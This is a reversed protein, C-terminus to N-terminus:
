KFRKVADERTPYIGMMSSLGTIKLLEMVRESPNVLFLDGGGGKALERGSMVQRLGASSIYEVNSFDLVIKYKGQKAARQLEEGLLPATVSNVQGTVAVVLANELTILEIEIAM